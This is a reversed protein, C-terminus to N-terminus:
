VTVHDFTVHSLVIVHSSYTKQNKKRVFAVQEDECLCRYHKKMYSVTTVTITMDCPECETDINLLREKKPIM